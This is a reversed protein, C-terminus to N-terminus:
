KVGEEKKSEKEEDKYEKIKRKLEEVALDVSLDIRTAAQNLHGGGGLKEMILQVSIEGLSRASVHTENNSIKVAVFSAKMGNISLMEDAAQAAILISNDVKDELIGIITDDMFIESQRVIDARNKIVMYDEKFYKKVVEPDAGFRRLMSAAEFTRVGTQVTFNKTDVTIGALLAEAEFKSLVVNDTMYTFLETVLEATSSAYPELFVLETSEIFEGSRRHHDIVVRDRIQDVLDPAESISKKHHDVVILLTKDDILSSLEAETRVVGNLSEEEKLRAMINRISMNVSNLAIYATKGRMRVLKVVGIASGIADMDANKHPMIVVNSADDILSRLAGGVVRAKVKTTKEVAKSKGGFYEYNHGRRLVAQDGGRGLAIDMTNRAIEYQKLPTEGDTTASISLTLPIISQVKLDRVRDLIDFKKQIIKQLNENNAIILYRDDDYKRVTAEYANFYNIIETEVNGTITARASDEVSSKVEDLNDIYLLITAIKEKDITDKAEKLDTRNIWYLLLMERDKSDKSKVKNVYVQYYNDRYLIKLPEDGASLIENLNISSIADLINDEPEGDIELMKIFKSNYWNIEGDQNIIVMPFPMKFVAQKTLSDITEEINEFNKQMLTTQDEFDQLFRIHLSVFIVLAIFGIIINLIMLMIVLALEFIVEILNEKVYAEIKKFM